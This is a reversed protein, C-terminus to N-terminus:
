GPELFESGCTFIIISM